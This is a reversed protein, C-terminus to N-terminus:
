KFLEEMTFKWISVKDLERHDAYEKSVYLSSCFKGLAQSVAFQEQPGSNYETLCAEFEFKRPEKVPTFDDGVFQILDRPHEGGFANNGGDSTLWNILDQSSNVVLIPYATYIRMGKMVVKWEMGKRDRYVKNLDLKM